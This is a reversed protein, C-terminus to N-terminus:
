RLIVFKGTKKKGNSTEVIYIYCGYAIEQLNVSLLNWREWGQTPHDHHLTIVREGSLTYIHIDCETPLNTFSIQKNYQDIDWEANIIYPNPVVKIKDLDENQVEKSTYRATNIRYFDRDGKFPKGTILRIVDGTIPSVSTDTYTYTTDYVVSDPTVNISTISTDVKLPPATLKFSFTFIARGRIQEQVKFEDGSTWTDRMEQTTDAPNPPPFHGFKAKQNLTINWIEFPVTYTAPFFATDPEDTFRIEYDFPETTSLGGSFTWNGVSLTGFDGHFWEISDPDFVVNGFKQIIALTLGDFPPSEQGNIDPSDQFIFKGTQDDKLSYTTATGSTDNFSISYSHGTVIFPDVIKVIITNNDYTGPLAEVKIDSEVYNSPRKGAVVEVLNPSANPNTGKACELYNLPAWDDPNLEADDVVGRDYATVSYWYTVGQTVNEDTWRHVIGTNSGKNLHPHVPDLGSVTNNLDFQAMPVFGVLLGNGDYIPDGWENMSPPGTTRYIKYGEFDNYGTMIDVAYESVDDWYLVISDPYVVATVNPPPPPDAGLYNLEYMFQATRANFRIDNTDAGFVLAFSVVVTDGAPLDFPGTSFEFMCDLGEPYDERIGAPSDFHPDLTGDPAPHFYAEEELTTLETNDGSMLKYSILEGRETEVEGPRNEWQYWHWGTIGLKEGDILRGSADRVPPEDILGDGDNDNGDSYHPHGEPAFPTDLLKLAPVVKYEPGPFEQTGGWRWDYIYAMNYAYTTDNEEDYETSIYTMWDMRDNLHESGPRTILEPVDSDDMIGLYVDHYDWQSNNIIQMPFFLIDEAYSRGYSLGQFNVQLDLAYGRDPVDDHEAYKLGQDDLDYDTIEFYVEKDASFKGVLVTEKDSDSLYRWPLTINQFDFESAAVTDIAVKGTNPDVAWMGPWFRYGDEDKPWTIPFTSTAVLPVDDLSTLDYVDGLIMEGSHLKGLAGAKPGWDPSQRSDLLDLPYRCIGSVSPGMSVMGGSIPEEVKPAWPGDPVGILFFISPIYSWGDYTGAPRGEDGWDFASLHSNLMMHQVRGADMLAAAVDIARGPKHLKTQQRQKNPESSMGVSVVSLCLMVIAFLCFVKSWGNIKMKEELNNILV